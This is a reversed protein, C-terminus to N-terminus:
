PSTAGSSATSPASPAEDIIYKVVIFRSDHKKIAMSNNTIGVLDDSSSQLIVADGGVAKVGKAIDSELGSMRVMGILGTKQRRDSLSGIIEFKRPPDGNSWFDIGDVTKKDGGEGERVAHRGEYATFEAATATAPGLIILALCALCMLKM